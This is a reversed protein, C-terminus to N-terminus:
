IRDGTLRVHGNMVPRQAIGESAQPMFGQPKETVISDTSLKSPLADIEALDISPLSLSIDPVSISRIAELGSEVRENKTQERLMPKSYQQQQQQPIPMPPIMNKLEQNNQQPRIKNNVEVINTKQPQQQQQQKNAGRSLKDNLSQLRLIEDRAQRLKNTLASIMTPIQIVKGEGLDVSQGVTDKLLSKYREIEGKLNKVNEKENELEAKTNNFDSVASEMQKRMDKIINKLNTNSNNLQNYDEKLQLTKINESNYNSLKARLSQIEEFQKKSNIGETELNAKLQESEKRLADNVATLKSNTSRLLNLEDSYKNLNIRTRELESTLQEVTRNIDKKETTSIRVLQEHQQTLRVENDVHLQEIQKLYEDKCNEAETLRSNLSTIDSRARKLLSTLETNEKKVNILENRSQELSKKCKFLDSKTYELENTAEELRKTLTVVHGSLREAETRSEELQNANREMEQRLGSMRRGSIIRADGLQQKMEIIQREAIAQKSKAENRGAELVTIEDFLSKVQLELENIHMDKERMLSLLESERKSALNRINTTEETSSKFSNTIKSIQDRTMDIQHILQSNEVNKSRLESTQKALAAELEACRVELAARAAQERGLTSWHANAQAARADTDNKFTMSLRAVEAKYRSVEEGKASLEGNMEEILRQLESIQVDRKKLEVLCENYARQAADARERESRVGEEVLKGLAQAQAAVASTPSGAVSSM